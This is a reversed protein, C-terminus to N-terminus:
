GISIKLIIYVLPAVFIVSDFRDLIGGHGPLIHGYDKVGYERKIASAVLDGVQSLLAILMYVIVLECSIDMLIPYQSSFAVILIYTALGTGIVGGISGEITKKPSLIPALKHKGFLVGTFYAFTDSCCAILFVSAIWFTYMKHNYMLVIYGFMVTPYLVGFIVTTLDKFKYKPYNVTYLVMGLLIIAYLYETLNHYFYDIGIFYTGSAIYGLWRFAKANMKTADYLEKTALISAIMLITGMIPKGALGCALLILAIGIGTLTRQLM